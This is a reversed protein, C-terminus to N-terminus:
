KTLYAYGFCILSFAFLILLLGFVPKKYDKWNNHNTTVNHLSLVFLLMTSAFFSSMGIMLSFRKVNALVQVELSAFILLAAFIGFSTLIDKKLDRAEKMANDLIAAMEERTVYPDSVNETVSPSGNIPNPNSM